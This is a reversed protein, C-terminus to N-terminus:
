TTSSARSYLVATHLTQMKFDTVCGCGGIERTVVFGKNKVQVHM